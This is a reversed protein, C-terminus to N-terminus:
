PSSRPVEREALVTAPDHGPVDGEFPWGLSFAEDRLLRRSWQENQSASLVLWLAIWVIAALPLIVGLLPVNAEIAVNRKLPRPAARSRGAPWLSV